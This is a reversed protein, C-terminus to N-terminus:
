IRRDRSGNCYALVTIDGGRMTQSLTEKSTEWTREDLSRVVPCCRQIVGSM